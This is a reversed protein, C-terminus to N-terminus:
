EAAAAGDSKEFRASIELYSEEDSRFLADHIAIDSNVLDFVEEASLRLGRGKSFAEKLRQHSNRRRRGGGVGGNERKRSM